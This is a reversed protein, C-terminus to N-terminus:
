KKDAGKRKVKALDLFEDETLEALKLIAMLTGRAVLNHMPIVAVRPPRGEEKLAMSVHSGRQRQIAFGRRTLAAVIEEGSFLKKPNM